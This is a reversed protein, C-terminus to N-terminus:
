ARFRHLTPLGTHIIPLSAIMPDAALLLIPHHSAGTIRPVRGLLELSILHAVPLLGSTWLMTGIVFRWRLSRPRMMAPGRRDSLGHGPRDRHVLNGAEAAAARHLSRR